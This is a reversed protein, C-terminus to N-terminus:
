QAVLPRSCCPLRLWIWSVTFTAARTPSPTPRDRCCSCPKSRQVASSASAHRRWWSERTHPQPRLLSVAAGALEVRRTTSWPGGVVVTGEANGAWTQGTELWVTAAETFRHDVALAASFCALPVNAAANASGDLPDVVLTYASGRDVFGIEESLVNVGLPETADIIAAEVLDDIWMTATGDAGIKVIRELESRPNRSVADHYTRTAADAAVAFAPHLDSQDLVNADRATLSRTVARM